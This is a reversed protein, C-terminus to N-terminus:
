SVDGPDSRHGQFLGEWHDLHREIGYRSVYRGHAATSLRNRANRDGILSRLAALLMDSTASDLLVASQADLVTTIEGATTTVIACGSAMAELLVLPQAEVAYRTPLVFIDADRFLAQKADGTAGKIWTAKVRTSANIARIQAEIWAAADDIRPFRSSFDSAVLPGCLTAEISGGEERSLALLAELYEPFGKTDILSSLHLLRVPRGTSGALAQKRALDPVGIPELTCTNVVIVLRERELGLEILRQRQREGNVTVTGARGLLFQFVRADLSGATWSMFLGSNLTILIRERGLGLSGALLPIADRVFATRTQGINVCLGDGRGLILRLSRLWAGLLHALYRPLAGRGGTQRELVPQPLRRCRWGRRTLGAIVLETAAKQGSFGKPDAFCFWITGPPTAAKESM